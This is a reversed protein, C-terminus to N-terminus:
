NIKTYGQKPSGHFVDGNFPYLSVTGDSHCDVMKIIRKVGQIAVEIKPMEAVFQDQNWTTIRYTKGTLWEVTKAIRNQGNIKAELKM